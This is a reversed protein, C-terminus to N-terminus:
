YVTSFEISIFPSVWVAEIHKGLLIQSFDSALGHSLDYVALKVSSM